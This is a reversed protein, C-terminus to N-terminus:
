CPIELEFEIPEVPRGNDFEYIFEQVEYPLLIDKGGIRIYDDGVLVEQETREQVAHYVPCCAPESPEGNDIHKQTLKFNM